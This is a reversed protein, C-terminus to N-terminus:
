DATGAVSATLSGIMLIIQLLGPQGSADGHRRCPPRTLNGALLTQKISALPGVLNKERWEPALRGGSLKQRLAVGRIWYAVLLPSLQDEELGLIKLHALLLERAEADFLKGALARAVLLGWPQPDLERCEALLYHILDFPMSSVVSTEWDILGTPILSVPDFFTNNVTLDGHIRVTPMTRGRALQIAASEVLALDKTLEVEVASIARFKSSYHLEVLSEDVVDRVVTAACMGNVFESIQARIM